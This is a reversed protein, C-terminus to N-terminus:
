VFQIELHSFFQHSFTRGDDSIFAPLVSSNSFDGNQLKGHDDIAALIM